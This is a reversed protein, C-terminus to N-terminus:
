CVYFSSRPNRSRAGGTNSFRGTKNTSSHRATPLNTSTAPNSYTTRTSSSNSLSDIGHNILSQTGQVSCAIYTEAMDAYCAVSPDPVLSRMRGTVKDTVLTAGVALVVDTFDGGDVVTRATAVTIKIAKFAGTISNGFIAEAGGILGDVVARGITKGVNVQDGTIAADM